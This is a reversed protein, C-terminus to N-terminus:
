IDNKNVQDIQKLYGTIEYFKTVLNKIVEIQKPSFSGVSATEFIEVSKMMITDVIM